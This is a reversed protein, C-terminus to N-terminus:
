DSITTTYGKDYVCSRFLARIPERSTKKVQVNNADTTITENTYTASSYCDNIAKIKLLQDLRLLGLFLMIVVAILFLPKILINITNQNNM